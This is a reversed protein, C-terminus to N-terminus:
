GHAGSGLVPVPEPALEPVLESLRQAWAGSGRVVARRREGDLLELRIDLREAPLLSGLREPWEILSVAAAFAEEIGLEYADEARELRYLDFHWVSMGPFDYAQVMTFTPSPVEEAPYGTLAALANIFARALTTKGAGLGGSLAIVDGRRVRAALLRALAQTAALDPLDLVLEPEETRTPAM